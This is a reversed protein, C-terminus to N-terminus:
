SQMIFGPLATVVTKRKLTECGTKNGTPLGSKFIMATPFGKVSEVENLLESFRIPTKQAEDIM